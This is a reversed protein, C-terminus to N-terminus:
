GAPTSRAARRRRADRLGIWLGILALPILWWFFVVTVVTGTIIRDLTHLSAAWAQEIAALRGTGAVASSRMSVSLTSLEAQSALVKRRAETRDIQLRTQDLRQQVQLVDNVNTARGLLQTYQAEVSRLNRLSAEIDTVEETVDRSSTSATRVEVALGKLRAIADDLKNSPVRLTMQATQQDGSGSLSSDSVFGGLASTADRASQVADQVSRVVLDMSGTRIMLRTADQSPLTTTSGGDYGAASGASSQSSAEGKSLSDMPPAPAVANTSPKVEGAIRSATACAATGLVAIALFLALGLRQMTRTTGM